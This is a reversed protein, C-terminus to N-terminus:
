LSAILDALPQYHTLEYAIGYTMKAVEPHQSQVQRGIQMATDVIPMYPGIPIQAAELRAKAVETKPRSLDVGKRKALANLQARAMPSDEYDISIYVLTVALDYKEELTALHSQERYFRALQPRTFLYHHVKALTDRITAIDDRKKAIQILEYHPLPSVPNLAVAQEYAAKAEDYRELEFLAVGLEYYLMFTLASVREIKGNEGFNLRYVLEEFPHSFAFKRPETSSEVKSDGILERYIDAAEEFKRERMCERASRIKGHFRDFTEELKKAARVIDSDPFKEVCYRGIAQVIPINENTRELSNLYNRIVGLDHEEDGTFESEFQAIIERVKEDMSKQM